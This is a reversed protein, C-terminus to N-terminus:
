PPSIGLLTMPLTRHPLQVVVRDWLLNVQQDGWGGMRSQLQVLM